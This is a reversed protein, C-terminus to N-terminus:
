TRIAMQPALLWVLLCRECDILCTQILLSTCSACDLVPQGLYFSLAEFFCDSGGADRSAHYRPVLRRQMAFATRCLGATRAFYRYREGCWLAQIPASRVARDLRVACQVTLVDVLALFLQSNTIGCWYERFEVATGSWLDPFWRGKCRARDKARQVHRQYCQKRTPATSAVGLTSEM